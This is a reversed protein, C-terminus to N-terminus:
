FLKTKRLGSQFIEAQEIFYMNYFLFIWLFPLVELSISNAGYVYNRHLVPVCHNEKDIFPTNVITQLHLLLRVGLPKPQMWDM